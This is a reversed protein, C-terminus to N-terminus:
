DGNRLEGGNILAWWRVSITPSWWADMFAEKPLSRIMVRGMAGPDFYYVRDDRVDVVVWVHPSMADVDFVEVIPWRGAKVATALRRISGSKFTRLTWPAATNFAKSAGRVARRIEATGSGYQLIPAHPRTALAVLASESIRLGFQKHLVTRVAAMACTSGREQAHLFRRM